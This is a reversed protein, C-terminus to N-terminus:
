ELDDTEIDIFLWVYLSQVSHKLFPANHRMVRALPGIKIIRKSDYERIFQLFIVNVVEGTIHRSVCQRTHRLM